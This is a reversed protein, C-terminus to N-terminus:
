KRVGFLCSVRFELVPAYEACYTKEKSKTTPFSPNNIPNSPFFATDVARKPIM